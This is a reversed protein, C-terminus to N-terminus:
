GRQCQWVRRRTPESDRVTVTFSATSEDGDGDEITYNITAVGDYGAAATFTVEGTNANIIATGVSNGGVVTAGTLTLPSDASAVDNSLVQVDIPTDDDTVHNGDDIAEPVDDLVGVDFTGSVPDGDEDTATFQVGVLTAIDENDNIPHDLPQSLTVEYTYDVTNDGNDSSGVISIRIVETAGGDVTGVLDGGDLAFVVNQGDSTLQGDYADLDDLVFAADLDVPLDQNYNIVIVGTDVVNEEGDTETPLGSDVNAFGFGDEDVLTSEASVVEPETDELLFIEEQEPFGFALETPPLLPTIPLGPDIEGPDTEFNGGSSGTATDAAPEVPEFLLPFVLGGIEVSDFQAAADEIRIQDGSPLTVLLDQGETTINQLTVGEPADYVNGVPRTPDTAATDAQAMLIPQEGGNVADANSQTSQDVGNGRTGTADGDLSAM